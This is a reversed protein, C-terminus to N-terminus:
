NLMFQVIVQNFNQETSLQRSDLKTEYKLMWFVWCHNYWQLTHMSFELCNTDKKIDIQTCFKSQIHNEQM